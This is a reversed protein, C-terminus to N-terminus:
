LSQSGPHNRGASASQNACLRACLASKHPRLILIRGSSRSFNEAVCGRGSPSCVLNPLFIHRTASRLKPTIHSCHVVQLYHPPWWLSGHLEVVRIGLFPSSSALSNHRDLPLTAFLSALALTFFDPSIVLSMNAVDQIDSHLYTKYRILAGVRNLLSPM